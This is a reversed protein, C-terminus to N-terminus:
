RAARLRRVADTALGTYCDCAEYASAVLTISLGRRMSVFVTTHYWDVSAVGEASLRTVTRFAAARTAGTPGINIQRAEITEATVGARRGKAWYEAFCAVYEARVTTRWYAELNGENKFFLATSGIMSSNNTFGARASGTVTIRSRDGPYTGCHPIGPLSLGTTDVRYSPLLDSRRVVASKARRNDAATLRNRPEGPQDAALALAPAMLSFVCAVTLWVPWVSRVTAVLLRMM